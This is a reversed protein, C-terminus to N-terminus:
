WITTLPIAIFVETGAPNGDKDSLDFISLASATERTALLEIRESTIETAKSIYEKHTKQSASRGIGNDTVTCILQRDKKEFRIQLLGKEKKPALGHIIANEVMPQLLLAPIATDDPNLNPDVSIAYDFKGKYRIQTLAIYLQLMEVEKSLPILQETNELLMRLLKSFKSIYDSAKVDNGEAYYGKITNLANFIFHPNMQLRLAKQELEIMQKELTAKDREAQIAKREFNFKHELKQLRMRWIFLLIAISVLLFLAVFPLTKWWPTDISFRIISTKSKNNRADTVYVKFTYHGPALAKYNIQSNTTTFWIEDAGELKYHYQLQQTNLFSIGDFAITLENQNYPLSIKKDWPRPQGNVRFETLHIDPRAKNEFDKYQNFYLIGNDTAVYVTDNIVEIDNIKQDDIALVPNFNRIHYKGDALYLKDIGTNTGIWYSNAGAKAIARANNNSLNNRRTFHSIIHGDKLILVGQSNSAILLTRHQKDFYLDEINANLGEGNQTYNIISDTPNYKYLGFNTGLWLDNKEGAAIVNTRKNLKLFETYNKSILSQWQDSHLVKKPCKLVIVTGFWVNGLGDDYVSNGAMQVAQKFNKVHILSYQNGTVYFGEPTFLLDKIINKDGAGINYARVSDRTLHYYNGEYGGAWLDKQLDTDLVSIKTNALADKSYVGMDPIMLAGAELSSLWYNCNRDRMVKSISLSPFLHRLQWRKDKIQCFYVGKRTGIWLNGVPDVDVSIIVASTKPLSFLWTIRHEDIRYIHNEFNFYVTAGNQSVRSRVLDPVVKGSSLLLQGKSNNIGTNMFMRIDGSKSELHCMIVRYNPVLGGPAYAFQTTESVRNQADLRYVNSMRDTIHITGKSDCLFTQLMGSLMKSKLYPTNKENHFKGNAYFGLKGNLTLFWLRGKQDEHIQFVENDALGDDTNYHIFDRGNYKVVGVDTAFWIYSKSDQFVYYVNSSPLGEEISYNIAHPTQAWASVVFLFLFLGIIKKM